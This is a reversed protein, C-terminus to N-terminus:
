GTTALRVAGHRVCVRQLTIFVVVDPTDDVRGVCRRVPAGACLSNCVYAAFVRVCVGAVSVVGIVM